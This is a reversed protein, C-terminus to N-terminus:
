ETVQIINNKNCEVEAKGQDQTIVVIDDEYLTIYKCEQSITISEHYILLFLVTVSLPFTDTVLNHSVAISLVIFDIFIIMISDQHINQANFLFQPKFRCENFKINHGLTLPCSVM